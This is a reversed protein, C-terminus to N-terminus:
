EMPFNEQRSPRQFLLSFWDFRTIKALSASKNNKVLWDFRLAIKQV